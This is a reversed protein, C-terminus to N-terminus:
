SPGQEPPLRRRRQASYLSQLTKGLETLNRDRGPLCTLAEPVVTPKIERAACNLADAMTTSGYPRPRDQKGENAAIRCLRVLAESLIPQLTDQLEPQDAALRGCVDLVRALQALHDDRTLMAAVIAPTTDATAVLHEGLLDPELPNWWDPGSPYLEHMWDALDFRREARADALNPILRLLGVAEQDKAAGTLTALAVVRRLLEPSAALGLLRAQVEWYRQEHRLLGGLMEARTARPKEDGTATEPDGQVARVADIVVMLPSTFLEGAMASEAQEPSPVSVPIGIHEGLAKMAVTLLRLREKPGLPLDDLIWQKAQDLAAELPASGRYRLVFSWDNDLRPVARVLLVVRVPHKVSATATLAAVRGFQEVRNEAYDVVVLRGSAAGGLADFTAQDATEPLFGNLWELWSAHECLAVGLHTKGSGGRGGVVCMAFAEDASMWTQLEALVEPRATYPLVGSRAWILRAPSSVDRGVPFVAPELPDPRSVGGRSRKEHRIDQDLGPDQATIRMALGRLTDPVPLDTDRYASVARKYTALATTPGARRYELRMLSEWLSRRQPDKELLGDIWAALQATPGEVELNAQVLLDEADERGARLLRRHQEVFPTPDLGDLPDGNWEDLATSLLRAAAQADKRNWAARGDVALRDFRDADLEDPKRRLRYGVRHEGDVIDDDLAGRLRDVTNRVTNERKKREADAADLWGEPYLAQALRATSVRDRDRDLLLVALVALVAKAGGHTVKTGSDNRAEVWGLIRFDM